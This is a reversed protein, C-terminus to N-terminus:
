SPSFVHDTAFTPSGSSSDIVWIEIAASTEGTNSDYDLEGSAGTVDVSEGAAFRAKVENWATPRVDIATGSSIKRLGRAIGLGTVAPENYSSWATGYIALWAADFSQATYSLVTVDEGSYAAAYSAAFSDYVPGAPTAPASGHVLSFLDSASSAGTLVDTNRAADTLFIGIGKGVFDLTDAALLFGVVDDAESSVFLVEDYGGNAADAVADAPGLASDFPFATSNGAFSATFAQELGEGYAGTQHIVAVELVGRDRMDAAIALAQTDDPPATRWLLGPSDDTSSLGDLPTLSPSTASPSIVLTGFAESVGNYVAEVDTSAAPGIIAPVGVADALWTAAAVSAESKPLDDYGTGEENTCHLLAFQKGDIGGNANAQSVALAASRYRGVHTDLTHDFVTGFLQYTDPDVPLTLGPPDTLACRPPPTTLECFGADGCTSGYGFLERCESSAACPQPDVTSLSCGGLMLSSLIVVIKM